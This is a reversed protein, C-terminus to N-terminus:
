PCETTKMSIKALNQDLANQLEPCTVKFAQRIFYDTGDLPGVQFVDGVLTAPAQDIQLEVCSNHLINKFMLFFSLEDNEQSYLYDFNEQDTTFTLARQYVDSPIEIVGNQNIALCGAAGFAGSSFVTNFATPVSHEGYLEEITKLRQNNDRPYCGNSSLINGPPCVCEGAELFSRPPCSSGSIPPTTDVDQVPGLVCSGLVCGVSCSQVLSAESELTCSATATGPNECLPSYRYIDNGQCFLNDLCDSDTKCVPVFLSGGSGGSSSSSSSPPTVPAATTTFNSIGTTNCNNYVDCSTINYFYQTGATLGTISFNYSTVNSSNSVVTGLTTTTGYNISGNGSESINWSIVVSTTTITDNSINNIEPAQNDIFTTFSSFSTTNFILTNNVYSLNTCTTGLCNTGNSSIETSNTSYTSLKRIEDVRSTTLNHLTINASSNINGLIFASTNLAASNNGIEITTGLGLVQSNTANLTLNRLFSGTGNDLWRIEGFSNNYIIYNVTDGSTDEITYTVNSSINNNTLTNNASSSDITVGAEIAGQFINNTLTNNFANTLLLGSGLTGVTGGTVNNNTAVNNS